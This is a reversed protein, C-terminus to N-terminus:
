SSDLSRMVRRVRRTARSDTLAVVLLLGLVWTGGSANAARVECVCVKVHNLLQSRQM